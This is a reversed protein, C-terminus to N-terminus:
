LLPLKLQGLDKVGGVVRLNGLAPDEKHQLFDIGGPPQEARLLFRTTTVQWDDGAQAIEMVELRRLTAQLVTADQRLINKDRIREVFVLANDGDFGIRQILTRNFFADQAEVRTKLHELSGAPLDKKGEGLALGEYVVGDKTLLVLDYKGVPLGTFRFGQNGDTLSGRYVHTHDHGVALAETLPVNVVGRIGGPAGPEPSTYIRQVPEDALAHNFIAFLALCLTLLFGRWRTSQNPTSPSRRAGNTRNVACGDLFRPPQAASLGLPAWLDGDVELAWVSGDIRNHLNTKM